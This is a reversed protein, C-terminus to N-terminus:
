ARLALTGRVANPAAVAARARITRAPHPDEEVPAGLLGAVPAAVEDVADVVGASVEEDVDAVDVDAVDVDAVDVDAVDAVDGPLEDAGCAVTVMWMLAYWYVKGAETAGPAVTLTIFMSSTLWVTVASVPAAKSRLAVPPMVVVKTAGVVGPDYGNWQVYWALM